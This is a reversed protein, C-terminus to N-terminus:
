RHSRRTHRHSLARHGAPGQYPDLPDMQPQARHFSNRRQPDLRGGRLAASEDIGGASIGGYANPTPRISLITHTTGLTWSPLIHVSALKPILKTPTFIKLSHKTSPKTSVASCSPLPKTRAASSCPWAIIDTPPWLSAASQISCASPSRAM